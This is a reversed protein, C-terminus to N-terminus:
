RFGPEGPMPPPGGGIGFYDISLFAATVSSTSMLVVHPIMRAAAPTAYRVTGTTACWPNSVSYSLLLVMLAVPTTDLISHVLGCMCTYTSTVSADPFTFVYLRSSVLGFAM